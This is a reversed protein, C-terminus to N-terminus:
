GPPPSASANAESEDAPAPDHAADSGVKSVGSACFQLAVQRADVLEAFAKPDTDPRVVKLRRAYARHVAMEDTTPSIHLLTWPYGSITATM